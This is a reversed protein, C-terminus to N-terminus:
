ITKMRATRKVEQQQKPDKQALTNAERPGAQRRFRADGVVAVEDTAAQAAAVRADNRVFSMYAGAADAGAPRKPAGRVAGLGVRGRENVEREDDIVRRVRMPERMPERM